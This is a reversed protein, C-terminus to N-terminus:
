HKIKDLIGRIERFISEIPRTGDVEKLLGKKKYFEMIPATERRYTELRKKISEPKDDDRQIVSSGCKDCKGEQKPKKVLTNYIEGCKSNNCIRRASMRKVAEADSIEILLAIDIPIKEFAKVQTLNRPYGDLIFGKKGLSKLKAMVIETTVDDPVLKGGDILARVKKGLESDEKRIERFIDGTAIHVLRYKEAILKAQTGKGSAQKGFILVKM